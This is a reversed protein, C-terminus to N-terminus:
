VRAFAQGLVAVIQPSNLVSEKRAIWKPHRLCGIAVQPHSALGNTREAKIANAKDM